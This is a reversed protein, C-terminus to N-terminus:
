GDLVPDFDQGSSHVAVYSFAVIAAVVARVGAADIEEQEFIPQDPNAVTIGNGSRSTTFTVEISVGSATKIIAAIRGHSRSTLSVIKM